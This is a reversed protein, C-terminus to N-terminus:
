PGWKGAVYGAALAGALEARGKWSQWFLKKDQASLEKNLKNVLERYREEREASLKLQADKGSIILNKEQLETEKLALTQELKHILTYQQNQVEADSTIVLRGQHVEGLAGQLLQAFLPDIKAESSPPTWSPYLSQGLSIMEEPPLIQSPDPLEITSLTEKLRKNEERLMQLRAQEKERLEALQAAEFNASDAMGQATAIQEELLAREEDTRELTLKLNEAAEQSEAHALTLKADVSRYIATAGALLCAFCLLIAIITGVQQKTM